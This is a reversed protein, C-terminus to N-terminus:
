ILVKSDSIIYNTPVIPNTFKNDGAYHIYYDNKELISHSLAKVNISYKKVLISLIYQSTLSAYVMDDINDKNNTVFIGYNKWNELYIQKFSENKFYMIGHNIILLKKDNVWDKVYKKINLTDIIDFLDYYRKCTRREFSDIVLDETFEPLRNHLIIDGDILCFEGTEKELVDIKFCDWFPTDYQELINIEDVFKIFYNASEKNCYMSTFYGLGKAAKISQIALNIRIIKRYDDNELSVPSDNYTWILKM